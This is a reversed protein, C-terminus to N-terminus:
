ETGFPRRQEAWHLPINARMIRELTLRRSQTGDSIQAQIDPAGLFVFGRWDGSTPKSTVGDEAAIGDITTAPSSRSKRRLIAHARKWVKSPMISASCSSRRKGGQPMEMASSGRWERYSWPLEIEVQDDGILCVLDRENCNMKHQAPRPRAPAANNHDPRGRGTARLGLGTGLRRSTTAALENM